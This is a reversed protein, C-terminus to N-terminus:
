RAVAAKVIKRVLAAPLPADLEFRLTGRGSTDYKAYDPGSTGVVGYIACHKAAAGIWLLDKGGIGFAPMKYSFGEVLRSDVAMIQMRLRDLAARQPEPLSALYGATSTAAPKSKKSATKVTKKVATSVSKSVKRAAM